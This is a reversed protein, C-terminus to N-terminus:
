QIPRDSVRREIRPRILALRNQILKGIAQASFHRRVYEQGSRAIRERSQADNRVAALADAAASIDPEM